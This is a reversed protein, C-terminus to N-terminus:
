AWDSGEPLRQNACPPCLTKGKIQRLLDMKTPEGCRDCTKSESVRAKPPIDASVEEIKFLSDADAELIERIREHRLREFEAREEPSAKEKQLKQAISLEDNYLNDEIMNANFAKEFGRVLLPCLGRQTVESDLEDMISTLKHEAITLIDARTKNRIRLFTFMKDLDVAISQCLLLQYTSFNMIESVDKFEKMTDAWFTPISESM